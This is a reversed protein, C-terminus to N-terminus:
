GLGVFGGMAMAASNYGHQGGSGSGLGEVLLRRRKEWDKLAGLVQGVKETRGVRVDNISVSGMKVDNDLLFDFLKFLGDLKDDTLSTPFASDPVPPSSPTGKIHEGIRLLHLGTIPLPIPDAGPVVSTSPSPPPLTVQLESPLHSNAWDIMENDITMTSAANSIVSKVSGKRTPRAPTSDQKPTSPPSTSSTAKSIVDLAPSEEVALVAGEGDGERGTLGMLVRADRSSLQNPNERRWSKQARDREGPSPPRPPPNMAQAVLLPITRMNVSSIVPRTYDRGITAKMIAKMWGRVIGKDDSCFFHKKGNEHEIKFGYKGPNLNEDYTVKFGVIDIFAKVKRNESRLIYLGKDKLVFFRLKWGGYKEAKKRMWGKYDPEGIQDIAKPLTTPSKATPGKPKASTTPSTSPSTSPKQANTTVASSLPSAYSSTRKRLM